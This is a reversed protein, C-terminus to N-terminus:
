ENERRKLSKTLTEISDDITKSMHACSKTIHGFHCYRKILKLFEATDMDKQLYDICGSAFARKKDCGLDQGSFILVPLYDFEKKVQDMIVFGDIDVLKDMILLDPDFLKILKITEDAHISTVVEIGMQELLLQQYHLFYANDDIVLVKMPNNM